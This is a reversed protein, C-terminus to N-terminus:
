SQNLWTKMEGSGRNSWAYYPVAKHGDFTITNVGGLLKKEYTVKYKTEETIEIRGLEPNDVEELAYVVPGYELAVKERNSEVRHLAGVKKVEMPLEIKITDGKRWKRNLTWYGDQVDKDVREANLYITPREKSQKTYHYLNGPTPMNRAWGPARIKLELELPQEPSLFIEVENEWPYSTQQVIKIDKEQFTFHAESGVYLNIYISNKSKAYILESIGPLMRMLNTPCCSVDFWDKRTLAGQNFKYAGDAELPNPYFFQTGDLSLGSLLGNYLIREIIDFYQAGGTLKFLNQNWYVNGIAACTENYATLNPLEYNEGFGENEHRSGIGGTLYMKKNVMNKWLSFVANYYSPERQLGAIDTMGAYMYVARVAHGVVEKQQTVPLHDQAYEGYLTHNQADGRKDLFYRAQKLYHKKLTVQYLKILGTEIIQHGPVGGIQGPGEGFTKVILDANKVAIDLLSRKGTARFHAAAAHYLHGVNYLEHSRDLSEWRKGEEVKVWSAPPDSPDITRWTTLYGDKEQGISITSIMDDLTEALEKNPANILSYAAGEIIKYVDSDDFPMKGKVTGKMQGGAILFNDLRGEEKIKQIGHQLTIEQVKKVIPLWFNDKLKVQGIGIPTISYGLDFTSMKYRKGAAMSTYLTSPILYAGMGLIGTNRIFNKRDM